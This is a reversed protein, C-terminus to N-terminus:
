HTYNVKFLTQKQLLIWALRIMKHAVAVAAKQRGVRLVLQNVWQSYRDERKKSWIIAAHAGQVLLARLYRDGRKTIQGMTSKNGSGHQRPTVGLWVGPESPKTFAQGSDIMAVLATTTLLGFGPISGVIECNRSNDRYRSLYSELQRIQETVFDYERKVSLILQRFEFSLLENSQSKEILRKFAANGSPIIIGFDTLLGRLQNTLQTRNKVLRRRMRHVAIVEQQAESKVPVFRLNPRQSCEAIALADNHDNKNGRVFPMVHQAPILFSQHGMQNFQRSWYHSSYCAEMYVPSPQQRYMFETLQNRKLKKNFVVRNHNDLACVQFINKALDVSMLKINTM